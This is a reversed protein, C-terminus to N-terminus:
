RKKKGPPLARQKGGFGPPLDDEDVNEGAKRADIDKSMQTFQDDGAAKKAFFEKSKAITEKMEKVLDIIISFEDQTIKRLASFTMQNWEIKGKKKSESTFHTLVTPVAVKRAYGKFSYMSSGRLNMQHPVGEHLVYLIVNEELKSKTKGEDDVYEYQAKLEPATGRSIEAGNCMLPVVDEDTDFVPSSTFSETAEDFYKLQRRKFFIIGEAEMGLETKEFVPKDDKDKEEAAKEIYFTGAEAVVELTKKGGVRKEETQDQSYMALRPLYKREFSDEEPPFDEMLLALSEEDAEVALAANKKSM